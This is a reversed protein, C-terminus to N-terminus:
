GMRPECWDPWLMAYRGVEGSISGPHFRYARGDARRSGGQVLAYDLRQNSDTTITIRAGPPKGSRPVLVLGVVAPRPM